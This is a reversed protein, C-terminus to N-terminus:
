FGQSNVRSKAQMKTGGSRDQHPLWVGIPAQLDASYSDAHSPSPGYTSKASILNPHLKWIIININEAM